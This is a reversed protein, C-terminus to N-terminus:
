ESLTRSFGFILTMESYHGEVGRLPPSFCQCLTVNPSLNPRRLFTFRMRFHFNRPALVFCFMPELFRDPGPTILNNEKTPHGSRGGEDM